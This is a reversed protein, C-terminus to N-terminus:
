KWNPISWCGFSNCGKDDDNLHVDNSGGGYTMYLYNTKAPWEAALTDIQKVSPVIGFNKRIKRIEEHSTDKARAIQNDSFVWKKRLIYFLKIWNM